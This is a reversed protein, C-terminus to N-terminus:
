LANFGAIWEDEKARMVQIDKKSKDKYGALHLVGHFIVRQLELEFSTKHKNANDAVRDISIYLEAEIKKDTELLPFTIIDTYYDHQLFQRNIGLLHEDSCFIVSLSLSKGSERKCNDTIYTKFKPKDPLTFQVDANHFRVAM